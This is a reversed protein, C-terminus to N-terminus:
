ARFRESKVTVADLRRRDIEPVFGAPITVAGDAFPMPRIFLGTTPKLFGNFEGANRITSRAVCAEMWGGIECALGDGLVPEMGLERVRHLADALAGLGGFRRLKLKCLGVGDIAAAREVDAIDCIPEDLMLPVPSAAAVAANSDWDEADCPQEFLEIGDADLGTAFRIGQDRDFGRNADIRLSARGAVVAQVTAVRELDADVNKGVKIKLTRYGESLRAEVEDAIAAGDKANIPALLPLRTEQAADLLSDGDLMELATVLATTAIKSLAKDAVISTIAEDVDLGVIRAAKDRCFSWGEDPTEVSSGPVIHGEGWGVRGDDDRAEVLIPHFSDFTRYSLPYPTKLPRELIRLVIERVKM